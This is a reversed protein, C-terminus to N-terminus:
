ENAQKLEHKNILAPVNPAPRQRPQSSAVPGRRQDTNDSHQDTIRQSRIARSAKARAPAPREHPLINAIQEFNLYM